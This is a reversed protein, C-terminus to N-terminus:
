DRMTAIAVPMIANMVMTKYIYIHYIEARLAIIQLVMQRLKESPFEKYEKARKSSSDALSM